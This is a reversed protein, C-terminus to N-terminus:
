RAIDRIWDAIQQDSPSDSKLVFNKETKDAAYAKKIQEGPFGKGPNYIMLSNPEALIAPAAFTDLNRIGPCFMGRELLNKDDSLDLNGCNAIVADAAPAAMLAWYAGQGTGLLLVKHQVVGLHSAARSASILNRVKAQMLTLNHTDFLVSREDNTPVPSADDVIAVELHHQLLMKAIGTPLGNDDINDHKASEGTLLVIVANTMASDTAASFHLMDCTSLGEPQHVTYKRLTYPGSCGLINTETTTVAEFSSPAAHVTREWIVRMTDKYTKLASDNTPNLNELDNRHTRMLYDVLGAQTITDDPMKGGPFVRLEADPEKTYPPEKVPQDPQNLLVKDFWQYVAERSVQNYNHGSNVIVYRLNEPQGMLRYINSIAPGEITMTTKTWDGTDAVIIQPCPAAAADIEMNSFEVRLGPMNECVCGGQMIHSVMAVPSLAALRHDIAGLIFTQAAGTSAGNCALRHADADPLSELFDLARICNWTQLGMMSINWLPMSPDITAFTPHIKGDPLNTPSDAFRTDNFNVLDFSFAIMGQRAFSICRAPISANTTDALRGGGWHGHPCLIAPFPGNSKGLPRYLNGAVYFGPYSQFYVKEISYGDREIKGFINAKLPTKEPMPWLGASVLIQQRITQARSVWEERTEIHPFERPTNRDKFPPAISPLTEKAACSLATFLFLIKFASARLRPSSSFINKLSDALTRM